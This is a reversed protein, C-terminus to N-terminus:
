GTVPQAEAPIETTDAVSMELEMSVTRMTRAEKPPTSSSDGEMHWESDLFAPGSLSIREPAVSGKVVACLIFGSVDGSVSQGDAFRVCFDVLTASLHLHPPSVGVLEMTIWASASPIRIAGADLPIIPKDAVDLGGMLAVLKPAQGRAIPRLARRAAGRDEVQERTVYTSFLGTAHSIPIDAGALIQDPKETLNGLLVHVTDSRHQQEVFLRAHIILPGIERLHDILVQWSADIKREIGILRSELQDNSTCVQTVLEPMLAKGVELFRAFVQTAIAQLETADDYLEGHQARNRAESLRKLARDFDALVSAAPTIPSAIEQLLAWAEKMGVTEFNARSCFITPVSRATLDKRIARLTAHDPRTILLYPDSKAITHKIGKEMALFLERICQSAVRIDPISDLSEHLKFARLFADTADVLFPLHNMSLDSRSCSTVPNEGSLRAITTTPMREVPPFM